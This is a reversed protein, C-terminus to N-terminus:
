DHLSFLSPLNNSQIKISKIGLSQASEIDRDNDGILLSQTIDINFRAIIKELMLTKPKRCLCNEIENFHPCYLIEDIQINEKALSDAMFKHLLEVDEKTYLKKSIGGQNSIIFILYNMSRFYKVFEFFGKTFAFDSIKFTYEGREVNVVGDRDLFLAKNM